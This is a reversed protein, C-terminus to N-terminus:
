FSCKCTVLDFYGSANWSEDGWDESCERSVPIGDFEAVSSYCTADGCIVDCSTRNRGEYTFQCGSNVCHVELFLTNRVDKNLAAYRADCDNGCTGCAEPNYETACTANTACYTGDQCTPQGALCTVDGEPIATGCTGCHDTSTQLNVCIGADCAGWGATGCSLTITLTQQVRHGGQDFFEAILDRQVPAEFAIPQVAHLQAWNLVIQYSGEAASTQFAGYSAGNPAKLAGGIVDDIGDPDTVIATVVLETSPSVQLTNASLDLIKPADEAVQECQGETTCFQDQLCTGCVVDVCGPASGCVRADCCAENNLTTNNSPNNTANNASNTNNVGANTNNSGNNIVLVPEKKAPSDSCGMSVAAVVGLGLISLRSM